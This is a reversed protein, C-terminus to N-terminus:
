EFKHQKDKRHLQMDTITTPLRADIYRFPSHFSLSSLSLRFGPLYYISKLVYGQKILEQERECGNEAFQIGNENFVFLFGHEFDM